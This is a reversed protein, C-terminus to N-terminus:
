KGERIGTQGSARGCKGSIQWSAVGKVNLRETALHVRM